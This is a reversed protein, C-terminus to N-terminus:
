CAAPSDPMRCQSGALQLKEQQCAQGLRWVTHCQSRRRKVASSTHLYLAVPLMQLLLETDGHMSGYLVGAQRCAHCSKTVLCAATQCGLRGAPIAVLDLAHLAPLLAGELLQENVGAGLKHRSCGVAQVGRRHACAETPMIPLAPCRGM